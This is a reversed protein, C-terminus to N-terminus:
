GEEQLNEIESISLNTTVDELLSYGDPITCEVPVEEYEGPTMGLLDIKAQVESVEFDEIDKGEEAKVRLSIADTVFSVALEEDLNETKIENSAISYVHSGEPLITFNVYIDESSGSTLKTNEPLYALLSAKRETDTTEGTIDVMDGSIVIRYDDYRLSTLADETGALSITDPVTSVREVHYGEAPEGTYSIYFRVGSQIRWFKTTVTAKGSNDITLYSSSLSDQNRDTITLSVDETVDRTKGSINVQATVKEIKNILPKPGTIKVKEPSVSQSGVEFGKGPKTDGYSANVVFEQTVKDELRMAMYSPNVRISTPSVGDCTATIPVMVPTTDLSVAQQLDASLRISSTSLRQLVKREATVTVRVPDRDDDIMCMKNYSDVYSTNVLNIKDGQVIFTRTDTPNDINVVILWILFGVGLSIIRLAINATLKRKSM